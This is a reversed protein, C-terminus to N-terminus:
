NFFRELWSEIESRKAPYGGKKYETGSSTPNMPCGGPKTGEYTIQDVLKGSAAEIVEIKLVQQVRIIDLDVYQCTELKKQSEEMCVVLEVDETQRSTPGWTKLFDYTLNHSRGDPYLLVLPHPGSLTNDFQSTSVVEHSCAPALAVLLPDGIEDLAEIAADGILAKDAEIAAILQGAPDNSALMEAVKKEADNRLYVGVLFLIGLVAFIVVLAVNGKIEGKLKEFM